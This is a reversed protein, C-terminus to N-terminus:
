VHARGIEGFGWFGLVGHMKMTDNELDILTCNIERRGTRWDIELVVYGM